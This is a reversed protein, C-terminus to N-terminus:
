DQVYQAWAKGTNSPVPPVPKKMNSPHPPVSYWIPGKIKKM